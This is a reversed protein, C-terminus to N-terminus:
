RIRERVRAALADARNRTPDDLVWELLEDLIRGFDPGPRLGMGILDRGSLALDAVALPPRGALLARLRDVVPLPNEGTGARCRAIWLRALDPVRERGFRSLWRRLEADTGDAPPAALGAAVLRSVRDIQANSARLRILVAAARAAGRAAEADAVPVGEIPLAGASGGEHTPGGVRALLAAFRLWPRHMPVAVTDAVSRDWEAAELAELEPVVVALAGSARYLGLARAPDPDQSLVKILEERVREPSLREIMAVGERMARWTDPEVSLGFRGAFRIGRVIRLHDERFRESADGVARLVRRDLDEAGGFPDFLAERVPHWAVANITFDRRALDDDIRDAFRVVAHRGDTEVDRRFTTVEYLTGDRALVGVTGHEIGVPVTRPFLRRVDGPRAGTAFDWDTAVAGLLEDRVAGGVAWTEHGAAELTEVIWRVAPPAPLRRRELSM